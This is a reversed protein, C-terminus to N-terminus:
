HLVFCSPFIALQGLGTLSHRRIETPFSSTSVHSDYSVLNGEGAELAGSEM